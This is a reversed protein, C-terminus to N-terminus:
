AQKAAQTRLQEVATMREASTTTQAGINLARLAAVRQRPTLSALYAARQEPTSNPNWQFPRPSRRAM